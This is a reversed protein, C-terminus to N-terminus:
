IVINSQIFKDLENKDIRKTGDIKYLNLGM